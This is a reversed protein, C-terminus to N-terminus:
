SRAVQGCVSTATGTAAAQRAALSNLATFTAQSNSTVAPSGAEAVLQVRLQQYSVGTAASDTAFPVPPTTGGVAATGNTIRSALVTWSPNTPSATGATNVTWTRSQLQQTATTVRVQTCVSSGSATTLYEVYWSGNVKGAANVASAYRVSADLRQFATIVDGSSTTVAETRRSTRFMTIIAGTFVGLFVTMVAMGVMVELLTVGRDDGGLGPGAALRRRLRHWGAM